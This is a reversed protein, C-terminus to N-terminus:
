TPTVSERVAETTLGGDIVERALQARKESSMKAISEEVTQDIGKEFAQWSEERRREVDKKMEPDYEVAGHRAMDERRAAHSQIPIGTVPSTYHVDPAVKVLVPVTFYREATLECEDCPVTPQYLSMPVIVVTEHGEPCRYPFTPM